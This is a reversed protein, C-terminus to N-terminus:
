ESRLSGTKEQARKRPAPDRLSSDAKGKIKATVYRRAEPQREEDPCPKLRASVWCCLDAKAASRTVECNVNKLSCERALPNAKALVGEAFFSM